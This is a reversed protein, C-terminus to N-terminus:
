AMLEIIVQRDILWGGLVTQTRRPPFSMLIATPHATRAAGYRAALRGALNVTEQNRHAYFNRFTQMHQFPDPALALAASVHALNPAGLASLVKLFVGVDHWAPEERRTIIAGPTANPKVVRIAFRLAADEDPPTTSGRIRSGSGDTVGLACSLYFSRAYSVWLNTAEIIVYTVLRDKDRFSAQAVARLM